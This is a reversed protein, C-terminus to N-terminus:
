EDDDLARRSHSAEVANPEPQPLAAATLMLWTTSLMQLPGCKPMQRLHPQQISIPLAVRVTVTCHDRAAQCPFSTHSTLPM